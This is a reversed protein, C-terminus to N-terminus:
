TWTGARRAAGCVVAPRHPRRRPGPTQRPRRRTRSHRITRTSCGPRSGDCSRPLRPYCVRLPAGGYTSQARGRKVRQSTAAGPRPSGSSPPSSAGRAGCYPASYRGRTPPTRATGRLNVRSILLTRRTASSSRPARSGASATRSADTSRMAWCNVGSPASWPTAPTGSPVRPRRRRSRRARPSRALGDLSGACRESGRSTTSWCSATWAKTTCM